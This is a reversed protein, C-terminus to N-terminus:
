PPPYGRNVSSGLLPTRPFRFPWPRFLFTPTVSAAEDEDLTTTDTNSYRHELNTTTNTAPHFSPVEDKIQIQAGPAFTAPQWGAVKTYTSRSRGPPLRDRIPFPLPASEHRRRHGQSPIPSSSRPPTPPQTKRRGRVTGKGGLLLLRVPM